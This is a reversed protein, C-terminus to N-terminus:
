RAPTAVRGLLELPVLFPNLPCVGAAQWPSELKSCEAKEPASCTEEPAKSAAGDGETAPGLSGGTPSPQPATLRLYTEMMHEVLATCPLLPLEEPLSM